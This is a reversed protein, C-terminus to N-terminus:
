KAIYNIGLWIGELYSFMQPSPIRYDFGLQGRHHAYTNPDIIYMNWGGYHNAFDTKYDTGLAENIWGLRCMILKKWEAHTM